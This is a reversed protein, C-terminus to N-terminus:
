YVHKGQAIIETHLSDGKKVEAIHRDDFGFNYILVSDPAALARLNGLAITQKERDFHVLLNSCRIVDFHWIFYINAVHEMYEAPKLVDFPFFILLSGGIQQETFENQLIDGGFIRHGSGFEDNLHMLLEVTTIGIMNTEEDYGGIGADLVNLPKQKPMIERLINSIAIETDALRRSKTNTATRRSLEEVMRDQLEKSALITELFKPYNKCVISLPAGTIKSVTYISLISAIGEHQLGNKARELSIRRQLEVCEKSTIISSLEKFSM